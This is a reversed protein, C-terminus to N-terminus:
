NKWEQPYQKCYSYIDKIGIINIEPANNLKTRGKKKKKFISFM